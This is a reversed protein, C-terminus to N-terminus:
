REAQGLRVRICERLTRHIRSLAVYVTNLSQGMADGLATGTLGARYRLDVIRRARKSLKELCWSLAEISEEAQPMEAKEWALDLQDLLAADLPIPGRGLRRVTALSILRASVCVWRQLHQEDQITSAKKLALVSVEQFVDEAVDFDRVISWIYGLIKARNAFLLRVIRDQQLVM